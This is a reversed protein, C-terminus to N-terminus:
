FHRGNSSSALFLSDLSPLSPIYICALYIYLFCIRRDNIHAPRAILLWNILVRMEGGAVRGMGARDYMHTRILSVRRVWRPSLPIIACMRARECEDVFQWMTSAAATTLPGRWVDHNIIPRTCCRRIFLILLPIRVSTFSGDRPFCPSNFVM